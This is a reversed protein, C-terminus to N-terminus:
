VFQAAHVDAVALQCGREDQVSRVLNEQSRRVVKGAIRIEVARVAEAGGNEFLGHRQFFVNGANQPRFFNGSGRIHQRRVGPVFPVGGHQRLCDNERFTRLVDGQQQAVCGGHVDGDRGAAAPHSVYSPANGHASADAKGQFPHVTDQLYGRFVANGHHFGSNDCRIELPLGTSQSPEVRRVRGGSLFAADSSVDGRVCAAGSAQFISDGSSVHQPQGHHKGASLYHFAASAGMFVLRPEIDPVEKDARFSHQADDGPGNQPEDGVRFCEAREAGAERLERQGSGGHLADQVAPM